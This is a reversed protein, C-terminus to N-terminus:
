YLANKRSPFPKRVLTNVKKYEASIFIYTVGSYSLQYLLPSFIRTDLTRNGKAAREVGWGPRKKKSQRKQRASGHVGIGASAKENAGADM